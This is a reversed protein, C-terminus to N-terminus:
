RAMPADLVESALLLRPPGAFRGLHFPQGGGLPATM